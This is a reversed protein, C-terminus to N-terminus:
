ALRVQNRTPEGDEDSSSSVIRRKLKSKTRVPTSKRYPLSDEDSEMIGIIHAAVLSGGSFLGTV